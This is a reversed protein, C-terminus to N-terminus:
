VMYYFDFSLFVCLTLFFNSFDVKTDACCYNQPKFNQYENKM